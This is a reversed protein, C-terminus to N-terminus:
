EVGGVARLNRAVIQGAAGTIRPVAQNGWAAAAQARVVCKAHMIGIVWLVSQAEVRAYGQDIRVRASERGRRREAPTHDVGYELPIAIPLRRCRPAVRDDIFKVDLSEGPQM